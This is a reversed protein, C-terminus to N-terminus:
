SIRPSRRPLCSSWYRARQRFSNQPRFATAVQRLSDAKPANDPNARYQVLISDFEGKALAIRFHIELEQATPEEQPQLVAAAQDFEQLEVLHMAYRAQWSRLNQQAYEKSADGVAPLQAQLHAIIQEYIPNRTQAPIWKANVLLQLVGNPDPAISALELLFAVGAQPDGVATYGARLLEEVRYTGNQRVYDRLVADSQPRLEAAVHRNGIHNMVYGFTSWFSPPVVRQHVQADLLEFATKWEAVAETRKQQRWYLVAVRDHIDARAPALELTHDYDEVARDLKGSDAYYEAVTIYGSATAPSEELQAPLFDEPDGTRTVDLWEGYRSGYCFWTNGALQQQRDVPKGLREAITGDGLANLFATNVAPSRDAFYLGTLGSYAKSWVPELSRGRAAVAQQALASPGHAIVYQCAADGVSGTWTGALQVLEQPNRQLLLEFYRQLVGGQVQLAIRRVVNFEADYLAGSRYADAAQALVGNRGTQLTLEQAYTELAAGLDEFRMRRTQVDVLSYEYGRSAPLGSLMLQKLWRVQLEPLGAASAAPVFIAGLEDNGKQASQKELWDGFQLREEPTFYQYVSKGMAQMAASLGGRATDRRIQLARTRWQQDTISLFGQKEVQQVAASVEAGLSTADAVARQLRGYAADQQRLRTMIEVYLRAGEHNESVALLDRGASDVGKQAFERAPQIMGWGELRTAVAFFNSPKEPRNEILAANLAAVAEM